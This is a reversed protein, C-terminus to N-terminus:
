VWLCRSSNLATSQSSLFEQKVLRQGQWCLKGRVQRVSWLVGKPIKAGLRTFKRPSKLFEVVEQLDQKATKLGAVDNFSVSGEEKEFRKAPSRIFSGMMGGSFPDSSRRMMVFMFFLLLLPVALWILLMTGPSFSTREASLDTLGRKKLESALENDQAYSPLLVTNFQQSLSGRFGEPPEAPIEVWEGTLIEGHFQVSKVNDDLLQAWFYGYPVTSGRNGPSSFVYYGSLLLLIILILTMPGFPGGRM